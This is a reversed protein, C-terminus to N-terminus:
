NNTEEIERSEIQCRRNEKDWFEIDVHPHSAGYFDGLGTGQGSLRKNTWKNVKRKLWSSINLILSNVGSDNPKVSAVNRWKEEIEQQSLLSM